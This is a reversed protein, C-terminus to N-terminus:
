SIGASLWVFSAGIAVGVIAGSLAAVLLGILAPSCTTAMAHDDDFPHKM